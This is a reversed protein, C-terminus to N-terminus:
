NKALQDAMQDFLNARAQLEYRRERLPTHHVQIRCTQAQARFEAILVNDAARNPQTM